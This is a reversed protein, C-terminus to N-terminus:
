PSDVPDIPWDMGLLGGSLVRLLGENLQRMAPPFPFGDIAEELVSVVLTPLFWHLRDMTPCRRGMLTPMASSGPGLM